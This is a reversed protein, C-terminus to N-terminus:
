DDAEDDDDDDYELGIKILQGSLLVYVVIAGVAMSLWVISRRQQQKEKATLQRATSGGRCVSCNLNMFGVGRLIYVQLSLLHLVGKAFPWGQVSRRKCVRTLSLYRMMLSALIPLASPLLGYVVNRLPLPLSLMDLRVMFIRIVVGKGEQARM